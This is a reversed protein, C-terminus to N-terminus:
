ALETEKLRDLLHRLSKREAKLEDKLEYHDTHRIEPGMDSVERAILTTLLAREESTLELIM